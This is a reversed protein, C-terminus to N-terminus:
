KSLPPQNLAAAIGVGMALTICGGSFMRCRMAHERKATPPYWGHAVNASVIVRYRSPACLGSAVRLAIPKNLIYSFAGRYALTGRVVPFTIPEPKGDAM